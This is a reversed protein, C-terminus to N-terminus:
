TKTPCGCGLRLSGGSLLVDLWAALFPAGPPPFLTLLATKDRWWSCASPGPGEPASCPPFCLTGSPPHGTSVPVALTTLSGPCRECPSPSLVKTCPPGLSSSWPAASPPDAHSVAQASVESVQAGPSSSCLASPSPLSPDAWPSGGCPSGKLCCSPGAKSPGPNRPGLVPWWLAVPSPPGSQSGAAARLEWQPGYRGGGPLRTGLLEGRRDQHGRRRPRGLQAHRFRGGQPAGDAWHGDHSLGATRSGLHQSM